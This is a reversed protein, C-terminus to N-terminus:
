ARTVSARVQLYSAIEESHIPAGTELAAVIAAATADGMRGVPLHVSTLPPDTYASSPLDDIGIVSIDTPVDMGANKCAILAGQAVVDSLCLLATPTPELASVVSAALAIAEPISRGTQFFARPPLLGHLGLVREGTRDNDVTPGSLVAINRHGAERLYDLALRAAGQNDYGIAPLDADQRFRSTAVVPVQHRDILADFGAARELGSVVLAEAGLNLLDTARHLEKEKDYGTTAVVVSLGARSLGRELEDLFRAFIEHSLTPVLAGVIHSRGSNIARAAASPVFNLAAVATEVKIKASKSVIAKGSLVRSVTAVSVGALRAVDRM